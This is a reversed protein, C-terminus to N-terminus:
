DDDRALRGQRCWRVAVREAEDLPLARVTGAARWDASRADLAVTAIVAYRYPPTGPQRVLLAARRDLRYATVARGNVTTERIDIPRRDVGGGMM